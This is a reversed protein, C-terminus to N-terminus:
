AGTAAGPEQTARIALWAANITDTKAHGGHSAIFAKVRAADARHVPLDLAFAADLPAREYGDTAECVALGHRRAGHDPRRPDQGRQARGSCADHIVVTKKSVDLGLLRPGTNSFLESRPM